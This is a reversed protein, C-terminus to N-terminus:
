TFPRDLELLFSLFPSGLSSRRNRLSGLLIVRFLQGQFKGTYIDSIAPIPTLNSELEAFPSEFSYVLISVPEKKSTRPARPDWWTSKTPRTFMNYEQTIEGDITM